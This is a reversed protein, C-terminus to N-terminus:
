WPYSSSKDIGLSEAVQHARLFVPSLNPAPNRLQVKLRNFEEEDKPPRNLIRQFDNVTAEQVTQDSRGWGHALKAPQYDLPSIRFLDLAATLGFQRTIRGLFPRANNINREEYYRNMMPELGPDANFLDLLFHVENVYPVFTPSGSKVYGNVDIGLRQLARMQTMGENIGSGLNYLSLGDNLVHQREHEFTEVSGHKWVLGINLPRSAIGSFDIHQAQGYNNTNILDRVLTMGEKFTVPLSVIHDRYLVDEGLENKHSDFWEGSLQAEPWFKHLLSEVLKTQIGWGFENSKVLNSNRRTHEPYIESLQLALRRRVESTGQETSWRHALGVLCQAREYDYSEIQRNPELSVGIKDAISNAITIARSEATNPSPDGLDHAILSFVNSHEKGSEITVPTDMLVSM